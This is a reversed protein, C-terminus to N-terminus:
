SNDLERHFQNAWVPSMIIEFKCLERVQELGALDRLYDDWSDLRSPLAPLRDTEPTRNGKCRQGDCEM